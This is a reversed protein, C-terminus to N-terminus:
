MRAVAELAKDCEDLESLILNIEAVLAPRDEPSAKDRQAKVHEIQNKFSLARKQWYTQMTSKMTM